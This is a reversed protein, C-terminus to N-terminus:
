DVLGFLFDNNLTEPLNQSGHAVEFGVSGELPDISVIGAVDARFHEALELSFIPVALQFRAVELLHYLVEVEIAVLQDVIVVEQLHQEGAVIAVQPRGDGLPGVVLQGAVLQQRHANFPGEALQKEFFYPHM